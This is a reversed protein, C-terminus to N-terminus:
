PSVLIAPPAPPHLPAEQEDVDDFTFFRKLALCHRELAYWTFLAAVLSAGVVAIFFFVYFGATGLTTLLLRPVAPHQLIARVVLMGCLEQLLYIAYSYRGVIRLISNELLRRIVSQPSATVTSTLLVGAVVSLATYGVMQMQTGTVLLSHQAFVVAVLVLAAVAVVPLLRPRLARLSTGSRARLALWSGVALADLHSPSLVYVALPDAGVLISTIRWGIACAILAVCVRSAARPSLLWIVLPWALYFQEEIALSWTPALYYSFWDRNVVVFVNTLYAFFSPWYPTDPDMPLDFVNARPLVLLVLLLVAYYVPFVRLFRRAYFNRFYGRRQRTDALIGTILYGSLVFFLTVGVWGGDAAFAIPQAPPVQLVVRMLTACHFAIVLLIALGRLGDLAPVYETRGAAGNRARAAGVM